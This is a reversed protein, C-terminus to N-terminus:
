PPDRYAGHGSIDGADHQKQASGAIQDGGDLVQHDIIVIQLPIKGIKINGVRHILAGQSHLFPVVVLIKHFKSINGEAIGVSLFIGQAM